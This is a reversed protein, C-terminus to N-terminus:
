GPSMVIVKNIQLIPATEAEVQSCCLHSCDIHALVCCQGTQTSLLPRPLKSHHVPHLPTLLIEIYYFYYDAWVNFMTYRRGQQFHGLIIHLSNLMHRLCRTLWKWCPFPAILCNWCSSPVLLCRRWINHKAFNWQCRKGIAPNRWSEGVGTNIQGTIAWNSSKVRASLRATVAAWM